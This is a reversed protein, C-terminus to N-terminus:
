FFFPALFQSGLLIVDQALLAGLAGEGALIGVGFRRADIAAGGASLLQKIGIRLVIGAAAPRAKILGHVWVFDFQM